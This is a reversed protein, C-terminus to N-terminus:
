SARSCHCIARRALSRSFLSLASSRLNSLPQPLSVRKATATAATTTTTATTSLRRSSFRFHCQPANSLAPHLGELKNVRSNREEKFFLM